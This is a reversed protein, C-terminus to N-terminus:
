ITAEATTEAQTTSAARTQADAARTQAAAVRTQEAAARSQEAATRAQEAALERLFIELATRTKSAQPGAIDIGREALYARTEAAVQMADGPACRTSLELIRSGDPYQWLEAVMRRKTGEPSFKLKLVFIPGLPMLDDFTVAEPSHAVFMRRQEKSFLRRLPATGAVVRRVADGKVTEKMRGSCVFGEPSADVEVGFNPNSRLQASIQDPVIPRLKVVADEGKRQMRRARVIVGHRDLLLDPTDFFYVQRIQASLPDLGLAEIAARQGNEAIALTLEVTDSKGTLALFRSLTEDSAILRSNEVASM